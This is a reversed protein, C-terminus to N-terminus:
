DVAAVAGGQAGPELVGQAIRHPQHVAVPLEIGTIEALQQGEILRVTHHAAIADAAAVRGYPAQVVGREERQYADDQAPGGAVDVATELEKRAVDAAPEEGVACQQAGLQDNPSALRPVLLDVDPHGVVWAGRA